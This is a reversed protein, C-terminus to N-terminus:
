NLTSDLIYRNLSDMYDNLIGIELGNLGPLVPNTLPHEGYSRNHHVNCDSKTRAVIIIRNM